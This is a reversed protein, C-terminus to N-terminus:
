VGIFLVNTIPSIWPQKSSSISSVVRVIEVSDCISEQKSGIQEFALRLIELYVIKFFCEVCGAFYNM